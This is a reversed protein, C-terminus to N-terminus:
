ITGDGYSGFSSTFDPDSHQAPLGLPIKAMQTSTMQLRIQRGPDLLGDLLGDPLHLKDPPM